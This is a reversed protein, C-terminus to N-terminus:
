KIGLREHMISVAENFGKDYPTFKKFVQGGGEYFYEQEPKKEPVAAEVLALIQNIAKQLDLSPILIGMGEPFDDVNQGVAIGNVIQEVQQRLTPPQSKM